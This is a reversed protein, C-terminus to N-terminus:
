LHQIIYYITSINTYVKWTSLTTNIDFTSFYIYSFPKFVLSKRPSASKPCLTVRGFFSFNATLPFMDVHFFSPPNLQCSAFHTPQTSLNSIQLDLQRFSLKFCFIPSKSGQLLILHRKQYNHPLLFPFIFFNQLHIIRLLYRHHHSLQSSVSKSTFYFSYFSHSLNPLISYFGDLLNSNNVTFSPLNLYTM